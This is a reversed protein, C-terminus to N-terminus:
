NKSGKPFPRPAQRTPLILDELRIKGALIEETHKVCPIFGTGKGAKRQEPTKKKYFTEIFEKTCCRPYGFYDGTTYMTRDAMTVCISVLYINL